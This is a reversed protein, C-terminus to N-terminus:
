LSGYNQLFWNGNVVFSMVDDINFNQDPHIVINPAIGSFPGLEYVYDDSEWATIFSSLDAGNIIMNQDYDAVLGVAYQFSYDDGGMGDSDGDLPYGYYNSVGDADLIITITDLGAFGNSLDIMITQTSDVYSFSPTVSDSHASVFQVFEESFGEPMMMQSFSISIQQDLWSILGPEPTIINVLPYVVSEKYIYSLKDSLKDM